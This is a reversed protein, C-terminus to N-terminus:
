LDDESDELVVAAGEGEDDMPKEELTMHDLMEDLKIEPYDEEIDDEGEDEDSLAGEAAAAEAMEVKRKKKSVPNKYINVHQRMEVDEELDRLFMEEDLDAKAKDSKRAHFNETEEVPLKALQWNRTINKRRYRPYTKRILVVEPLPKGKM